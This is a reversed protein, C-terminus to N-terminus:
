PLSSRPEGQLIQMQINFPRPPPHVEASCGAEESEEKQERRPSAKERVLHSTM